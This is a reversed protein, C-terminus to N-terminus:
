KKRNGYDKHIIYTFQIVWFPKITTTIKRDKEFGYGGAPWLEQGNYQFYYYAVNLASEISIAFYRTFAYQFGAIVSTGVTIEKKHIDIIANGPPVILYRANLRAYQGTVDFGTYWRCRDAGFQWEHGISLYPSWGRYIDTSDRGDSDFDRRESDLGVRFRWARGKTLQQRYNYRAFITAAPVNNKDFLSLVDVGLEWHNQVLTDASAQAYASTSHATIGLWLFCILCTYNKRM